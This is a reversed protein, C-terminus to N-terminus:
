RAMRAGELGLWAVRGDPPGLARGAATDGTWPELMPLGVGDGDGDGDGDGGGGGGGHLGASPESVGGGNNSDEEERRQHLRKAQYGAAMEAASTADGITAFMQALANAGGYMMSQVLPRCGRRGACTCHLTLVPAVTYSPLAPAPATCPSHRPLLIRPCDWRLALTTISYCLEM